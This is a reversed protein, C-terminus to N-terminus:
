NSIGDAYIEDFNCLFNSNKYWFFILMIKEIMLSYFIKM